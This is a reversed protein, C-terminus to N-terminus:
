YRNGKQLNLLAPLYQLNEIVHLGSVTEGKLPIIHDVHFGQPCHLYFELVEKKNTWVPTQTRRRAHRDKTYAKAKPTLWVKTQKKWKSNKLNVKEQNNQQWLLVTQKTCEKCRSQLGDKNKKNKYFYTELLDQKCLLCIKMTLLRYM